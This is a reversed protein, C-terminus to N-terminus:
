CGKAAYTEELWQIEPANPINREDATIAQSIQQCTWDAHYLNKHGCGPALGIVPVLATLLLLRTRCSATGDVGIARRLSRALRM